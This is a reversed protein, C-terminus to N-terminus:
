HRCPRQRLAFPCEPFCLTSGAEACKFGPDEFLVTDTDLALLDPDKRDRIQLTSAATMMSVVTGLTM